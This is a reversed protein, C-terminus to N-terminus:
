ARRSSSRSSPARPRGRRPDVAEAGGAPADDPLDRVPPRDAVLGSLSGCKLIEIYFLEFGSWDRYMLFKIHHDYFDSIATRMRDAAEEDKAKQFEGSAGPRREGARGAAAGVAGAQGHLRPLDRGRRDGPRLGPGAPGGVAPLLGEPHRPLERGPHARERGAPDGLHRDARHEAGEQARPAPLLRLLRLHRLAGPGGQPVRLIRRDIYSLLLRTESTILSFPLLTDRLNEEESGTPTPSSSTTSSGSCSWSSRPRRVSRTRSRPDRPDAGPDGPQPHPRPGAQVEQRHDDGRPRQAPGAPPPDQGGRPLDRLAPPRPSGPGAPPPPPGRVGRPSPHSGGGPHHPPDAEPHLSRPERRTALSTEIYRDFRSLDVQEETLISNCLHVVRLLAHDM